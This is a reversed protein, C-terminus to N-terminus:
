HGHEQHVLAGVQEVRADQLMSKPLGVNDERRDDTWAREAPRDPPFAPPGDQKVTLGHACVERVEIVDNTQEVLWGAARPSYEQNGGAILALALQHPRDITLCGVPAAVRRDGLVGHLWAIM